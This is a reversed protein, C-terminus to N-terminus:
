LAPLKGSKASKIRQIGVRMQEAAQQADSRDKDGLASDQAMQEIIPLAQEWARQIHALDVKAETCNYGREFSQGSECRAKHTTYLNLHTKADAGAMILQQAYARRAAQQSAEEDPASDSGCNVFVAAFLCLALSCILCTKKM